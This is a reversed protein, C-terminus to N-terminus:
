LGYVRSVFSQTNEDGTQRLLNMFPGDDCEVLERVTGFQVIRGADLVMIKDFSALANLRHAIALVTTHAFDDSLTSYLVRETASDVSATAEDMVLVTPKSLLARALCLLQRQGVSLNAGEDAICFDLKNELGAVFDKMGVRELATWIVSDCAVGSPDMNFRLTAEFLVPEQPIIELRSRLSTLTLTSIDVGDIIINGSLPEVVRLLATVLTSKGCGTRGVIGIKEAPKAEFSIGQLAPAKRSPYKLVLSEVKIGGRSPWDPDADAGQNRERPISDIYHSLREVGNMEIELMTMGMVASNLSESMNIAYSLAMAAMSASVVGLNAFSSLFATLIAAALEVRGLLWSDASFRNFSPRNAADMLSSHVTLFRATAKYTHIVSLGALTESFQAVMPSRETSELRKMERTSARYFRQVFFYGVSMPLLLLLLYPVVISIVVITGVVPVLGAVVFAFWANWITLDLGGVDHSFRNLIRGTPNTEFFNMPASFVASLARSHFRSAAALALLIIGFTAVLTTVVQGASLGMYLFLYQSEDWGYKDQSWFGLVINGADAFARAVFVFGLAVCAILLGATKLYNIYVAAKVAGVEREEEIILCQKHDQDTDADALLADATEPAPAVDVVTAANVNSLEREDAIPSTDKREAQVTLDELMKALIGSGKTQLENFTGSEVLRGNDMVLIHDFRPLYQLQHTVFIRTTGTLHSNICDEFIQAGVQADLASLVDDFILVESRAYVARALAIRARQGGSLTAGKEGIQTMDRKGFMDLDLELGCVRLTKWYEEANYPRGFLINDRITQSTIWPVQPCYNVSGHIILEGKEKVMEGVIASLVSSKGSGITGVIATLTGSKISVTLDSITFPAEPKDNASDANEGAMDEASEELAPWQFTANKITVADAAGPVYTVFRDSMDVEEAAFFEELRALSVKAMHIANLIQSFYWVPVFLSNFYALAPFIIEAVLSNGLKHYVVFSSLSMGLSVVQGVTCFSGRLLLITRLNRLEESRVASVSSNFFPEWANLKIIKIAQLSERIKKLRSDKCEFLAQIAPAQTKELFMNLALLLVLTAIGALASVGLLHIVLAFTIIIQVPTAWLQHLYPLLKDQIEVDSGIMNIVKGAPHLLRSKPSLHLSKRYLASTLLTRVNMGITKATQDHFRRTLNAIILLFFMLCMYIYGDPAKKPEADTLLFKIFKQLVIPVALHCGVSLTFAIGSVRRCQSIRNVLCILILTIPPHASQCVSWAGGFIKWM